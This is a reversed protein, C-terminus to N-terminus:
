NAIIRALLVIPIVPIALGTVLLVIAIVVKEARSSDHWISQWMEDIAQATRQLLGAM